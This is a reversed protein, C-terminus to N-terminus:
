PRAEMSANRRRRRPWWWAVAGVSLVATALVARAAWARDLEGLAHDRPEDRQTPPTDAASTLSGELLDTDKGAMVTLMIPHSGPKSLAALLAPDAIVYDGEAPRFKAVAKLTGSEADLKADLVPENTDFRDILIVFQGQQLTGVAEFLESHLEVRPSAATGAPTSGPADLHEGNPGHAGPGAAVPLPFAMSLLVAVAGRGIFIKFTM